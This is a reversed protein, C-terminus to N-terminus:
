YFTTGCSGENKVEANTPIRHCLESGPRKIWLSIRYMNFLLNPPGCLRGPRKSSSFFKEDRGSNSGRITWGTAEDSYCHAM